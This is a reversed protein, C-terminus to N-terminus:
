PLLKTSLPVLGAGLSLGALFAVLFDYGPPFITAIFDEEGKRIAALIDTGLEEGLKVRYECVATILDAITARAGTEHDVVIVHDPPLNQSAHIFDLLYPDQPLKPNVVSM